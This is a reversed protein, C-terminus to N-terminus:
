IKYGTFTFPVYSNVYISEDYINYLKVEDGKQLHLTVVVNMMSYNEEDGEYIQQVLDQNKYVFIEGQKGFYGNKNASVILTYKGEDKITLRGTQPDFIDGVDILETFGTIDGRPLYYKSRRIEAAFRPKNELATTRTDLTRTKAECTSQKITMGELRKEIDPINLSDRIQDLETKKMPISAFKSASYASCGDTTEVKVEIQYTGGAAMDELIIQNNNSYAIKEHGTTLPEGCKPDIRSYRVYYSTVTSGEVIREPPDWRLEVRHHTTNIVNPAQPPKPLTYSRVVAKTELREIHSEPTNTHNSIPVVEVIYKTAHQLGTVTMEFANQDTKAEYGM